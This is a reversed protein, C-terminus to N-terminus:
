QTHRPPHHQQHMDTTKGETALLTARAHRKDTAARNHQWIASIVRKGTIEQRRTHTDKRVCAVFAATPGSRPTTSQLVTYGM